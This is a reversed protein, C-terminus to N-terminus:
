RQEDSRQEMRANRQEATNNDVRTTRQEARCEEHAREM